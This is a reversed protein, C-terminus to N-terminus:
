GVLELKQLREYDFTRGWVKNDKIKLTYPPHQIFPQMFSPIDFPFTIFHKHYLDVLLKQKIEPHEEIYELLSLKTQPNASILKRWPSRFQRSLHHFDSKIDASIFFYDDLYFTRCGAKWVRSDVGGAMKVTELYDKHFIVCNPPHLYSPKDPWTKGMLTRMVPIAMTIQHYRKFFEKKSLELLKHELSHSSSNEFAIFDADWVFIWKNSCQSIAFNRLDALDRIEPKFYEKLNLNYKKKLKKVKERTGDTSGNDVFVIEDAINAISLICPEIWYIENKAVIYFSIPLDIAM